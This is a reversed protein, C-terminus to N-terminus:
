DEVQAVALRIAAYLSDPKAQGTWAIDFATGHDVSTRVISLGLTTNVASDFALAKVPIHGQDHYMCVVADCKALRSPIFATDPPLPGEVSVGRQRAARIAPEILREEEGNGFLGSEGAHPNLGCVILNPQKRRIRKLADHTLLITSLVKEVSLLEPVQSYGCHVTVFTCTITPSYQMMCWRDDAAAREAFMETHGPYHHGAAQLALKNIPGTAVADISGDLAADIASQILRFALEGAQRSVRGLEFLRQDILPHDIVFVPQELLSKFEQRASDSAIVPVDPVAWGLHQCCALLVSWDAYVALRCVKRFDKNGMARLVLEPGVGAPDGMTLGITPIRDLM